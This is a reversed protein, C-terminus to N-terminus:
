KIAVFVEVVKPSEFFKEGYVEFDGTYTRQLDTKWIQGWIDILSKPYEGVARFVVYSTAPIIKSVMGEPVSKSATVQSGIVFTYPKTYDSEYDCYLAIVDNSVKNPIQDMINDSYFKGWHQPIDKPGADPHNSTRCEIGVVIMSPKQVVTYNGMINEKAVFNQNIVLPTAQSM